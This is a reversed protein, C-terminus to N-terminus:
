LGFLRTYFIPCDYTSSLIDFSPSSFASLCHRPCYNALCFRISFSSQQLCEAACACDISSHDCNILIEFSLIICLGLHRRLGLQL